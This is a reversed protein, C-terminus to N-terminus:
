FKNKQDRLFSFLEIDSFNHKEKLKKALNCNQSLFPNVTKEIGLNFPISRGSNQIENNIKNEGCLLLENNIHAIDFDANHIILRKNKIFSLFEDKINAFKNQKSLFEDTYGHIEFAKESVKRQPNLYCHFKKKTPILDDLEICGIEVIRHGEELDLGTTETDLVLERVM